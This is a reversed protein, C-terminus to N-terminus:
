IVILIEIVCLCCHFCMIVCVCAASGLLGWVTNNCYIYLLATMICGKIDSM